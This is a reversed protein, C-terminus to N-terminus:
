KKVGFKELHEELEQLLKKVEDIEKKLINELEKRKRDEESEINEQVKYFLGTSVCYHTADEPADEWAKENYENM